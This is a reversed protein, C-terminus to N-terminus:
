KNTDINGDTTAIEINGWYGFVLLKQKLFYRFQMGRTQPIPSDTIPQILIPIFCWSTILKLIAM